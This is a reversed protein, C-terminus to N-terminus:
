FGPLSVNWCRVGDTINVDFGFQLLMTTMLNSDEYNSGSGFYTGAYAVLVICALSQFAMALAYATLMRKSTWAAAFLGYISVIAGAGGLVIM